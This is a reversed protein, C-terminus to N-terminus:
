AKEASGLLEIKERVVKALENKIPGFLQQAPPDPRTQSDASAKLGKAMAIRCDAYINLKCIGNRVAEQIQNDPTGSGGHLVLPVKSVRNLEKLRDINLEPLSEYVGHSTGISVALADVGTTAVFREVDGPETLVSEIRNTAQLDVGGVCGLEGEVSVGKPHALRATAKSIEVNEEFPLASGDIMVSTFGCDVAKKISELDTAHDLHLVVPVSHFDAAAKILGPVYEWGNGDLDAGILCMLVVPSRMQECTELIARVMVDEVCDFAPVAYGANRADALVEKLTTLMHKGKKWKM